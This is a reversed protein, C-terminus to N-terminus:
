LLLMWKNVKIIEKSALDYDKSAIKISTLYYYPPYDLKHRNTMEYNYFKKYDNEQVCKLTFNDPNFTQLIVEGKKDGRGARGAVQNLLEFTRESSRFDPINLTADANIVGVLTVNEFDLGKAIIQTGLLIDYEKNEFADLIKQHGNKVNVTDLDMRIIKADDKSAISHEIKLDRNIIENM